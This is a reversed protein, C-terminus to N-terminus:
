DKKWGAAVLDPILNLPAPLNETNPAATPTYKAFEPFRSILTKATTCSYLASRIKEELGERVKEQKLDADAIPDLLQRDEATLGSEDGPIQFYYRRKKAGLHYGCYTTKLFGRLEADGWVRQILEPLKLALREILADKLQEEYDTKPIDLMIQRLITQRLENTLRM